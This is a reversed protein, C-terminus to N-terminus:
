REYAGGEAVGTKLDVTFPKWTDDLPSWAEGKVKGGDVRLDRIGDWSIRRTHWRQGDRDWGELCVRSDTILLDDLQLTSCIYGGFTRRLSRTVPQILYGQGGAIVAVSSGGPYPVIESYSSGGPQFNGVWSEPSDPFFEVVYGERHTGAGSASFQEPWPGYAPLGPLVRFQDM